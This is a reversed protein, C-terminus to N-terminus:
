KVLVLPKIDSIGFGTMEVFYVGSELNEGEILIQHEGAELKENKLIDTVVEGLISYLRISIERDRKLYFSLTSQNSFPNPHLTFANELPEDEEIQVEEEPLTLTVESCDEIIGQFDADGLVKFGHKLEIRTGAKYIVNAQNTIASSSVIWDVAAFTETTNSSEPLHLTRNAACFPDVIVEASAAYACNHADIVTYSYTDPALNFLSAEMSGDAWQFTYPPTGGSPLLTISGDSSGEENAAVVIEEVSLPSPSPIVVAVEFLCGSSSTVSVQYAGASLNDVTATTRGDPWLFTPMEDGSTSITASGNSSAPCSVGQRQVHYFMECDTPTSCNVVGQIVQVCSQNDEVKVIYEDNEALQEGNANGFFTYNGSGGTAEIRLEAAEASLCFADVSLALPTFNDGQEIDLIELCGSGELHGFSTGVSMIQVYYTLGSTLGEVKEYGLCSQPNQVCFVQSTNACTGEYIALAHLFDAETRLKIGGSVPAVFQFWVDAAPFIECTPRIDSMSADHNDFPTCTSGPMIVEAAECVQHNAVTVEELTVCVTGEIGAFNGSIQVWYNANIILNELSLRSTNSSEIENLNNCDGEYATLITSFDAQSVVQLSAQTAVFQYWISARARSNNNLLIADTTAHQNSQQICTQNLMLTQATECIDNNPPIPLNDVSAISICLSDYAVGFLGLVGSVQIYYDTGNSVELYLTEGDFGYEDKNTCDTPSLNGCTGTFVTIVDNYKAQTEIKVYGTFDAQYQYWLAGVTNETCNIPLANDLSDLNNQIICAANLNLLSAQECSQNSQAFAISSLLLYYILLTNKM